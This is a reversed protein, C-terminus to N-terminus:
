LDVLGFPQKLYIQHVKPFLDVWDWNHVYKNNELISLKDLVCVNLGSIRLYRISVMPLVTM